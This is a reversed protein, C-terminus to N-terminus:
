VHATEKVSTNVSATVGACAPAWRLLYRRKAAKTNLQTGAKAPIVITNQMVPLQM